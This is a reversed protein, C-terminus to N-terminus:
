LNRKSSLKLFVKAERLVMSAEEQTNTFIRCRRMGGKRKNGQSSPMKVGTVFSTVAVM